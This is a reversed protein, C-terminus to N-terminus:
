RLFGNRTEQLSVVKRCMDVFYDQQFKNKMLNVGMHVWQVNGPIYGKTSDIQDLSATDGRTSRKNEPDMKLPIGTLACRGQQALFLDWVEEMTLCVELNREKAKVLINGWKRHTLDGV